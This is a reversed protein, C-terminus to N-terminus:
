SGIRTQYLTIQVGDHDRFRVNQDGWPTVVPPHVLTAGHSELRRMAAHLDPVELAFRIRGSVRRGVELQDITRAQKEEFVELTARGLYLVLARGQDGSLVQAPELGLGDRYFGALRDFSGTTLAVPLEMVPPNTGPTSM